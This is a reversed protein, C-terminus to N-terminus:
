KVLMLKQTKVYSGSTMNVFYMGSPYSSANWNVSYNGATKFGHILTQIQRGSIDYVVLEVDTNVPLSYQINTVPNFPNPYPKELYYYVPLISVNEGMYDPDPYLNIISTKMAIWVTSSDSELNILNGSTADLLKFTIIDGGICYGETGDSGEDGMAPVTTYKGNWYRAGVVVAENYAIILYEEEISESSIDLSDIIFFAQQMSQTFRYEEPIDDQIKPPKIVVDGTGNFSFSFDAKAVLWYGNGGEFSKLSGVWGGAGNNFDSSWLAALGAGAVAYVNDAADGLADGVSQPDTFPYSILNNGMHNNYVVEGDADYTVPECNALDISGDVSVKVWYGDDQSVETLAGIWMGDLNVAGVGEGIVGDCGAFINEVSVDDPLCPFSILNAGAHLTLTLDYCDSDANSDCVGCEDVEASGGCEGACDTVCDGFELCNGYCDYCLDPYECSGDNEIANYNYNCADIYTCGSYTAQEDITPITNEIASFLKTYVSNISPIDTSSEISFWLEEGVSNNTYIGQPNTSASLCDCGSDGSICASIGYTNISDNFSGILDTYPVPSGAYENSGHSLVVGEYHEGDCESGFTHMSLAFRYNNFSSEFITQFVSAHNRAMDSIIDDDPNSNNNKDKCSEMTDNNNNAYRHTGSILLWEAGLIQFADIGVMFSNYDYIPHNVHIQLPYQPVSNYVFTGWGKAIPNSEKFIWYNESYIEPNNILEYGFPGISDRCAEINDQFFLSLANEWTQLEADTPQVFTNSAFGPMNFRIEWLLNMFHNSSFNYNLIESLSWDFNCSYGMDTITEDFDFPLGPDGANILNISTPCYNEDLGPNIEINSDGPYGGEINSFSVSVSAETALEIQSESNGWIICSNIIPNSYTGYDEIFESNYTIYIGEEDTNEYITNKILKPSANYIHFGSGSSSASNQYILNNILLSESSSFYIGGGRASATNSNIINDIIYPNAQIIYIGAGRPSENDQIHNQYIISNARTIYIGGGSRDSTNNIITNNRIISPIASRVGQEKYIGGGKDAINDKIINYEIIPSSNYIYIGGGKDASGKIITFNRIVATSDEGQEFRVVNGNNQGDIITTERNEGQVVINKGHFNINEYYTGTEVLITDGDSASDIANQIASYSTSGDSSVVYLDTGLCFSLFSLFLILHM